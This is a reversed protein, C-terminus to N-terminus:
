IKRKMWADFLVGCEPCLDILTKEFHIVSYGVEYNSREMEAGIWAGADQYKEKGCKDCKVITKTERM